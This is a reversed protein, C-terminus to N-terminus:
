RVDHGGEEDEEDDDAETPAEPVKPANAAIWDLLQDEWKDATARGIGPLSQLGGGDVRLHDLQGVTSIGAEALKEAQKESLTIAEGVPTELWNDKLPLELQANPGGRICSRLEAVAAAWASKRAHADAKATEYDGELVSCRSELDRISQYHKREIESMVVPEAEAPKTKRKTRTKSM